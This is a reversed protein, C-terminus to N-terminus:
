TIFDFILFTCEIHKTAKYSPHARGKAQGGLKIFLCDYGRVESM